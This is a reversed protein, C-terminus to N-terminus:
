CLEAAQRSSVAQTCLWHHLPVNCLRGEASACSSAAAMPHQVAIYAVSRLQHCSTPHQAVICPMCAACAIGAPLLKTLAMCTAYGTCLQWLMQGIDILLGFCM